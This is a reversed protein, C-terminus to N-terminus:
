RHLSSGDQLGLVPGGDVGVGPGNKIVQEVLEIKEPLFVDERTKNGRIRLRFWAEQVLFQAPAAELPELDQELEWSVKDSGSAAVLLMSGLTLLLFSIASRM